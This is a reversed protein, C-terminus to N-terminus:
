MLSVDVNDNLYYVSHAKKQIVNADAQVAAINGKGHQAYSRPEKPKTYATKYLNAYVAADMISGSTAMEGEGLTTPRTAANVYLAERLENIAKYTPDGIVNPITKIPLKERVDELLIVMRM